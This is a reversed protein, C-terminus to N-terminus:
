PQCDRQYYYKQLTRIQHRRLERRRRRWSRIVLRHLTVYVVAFVLGFLGFAYILVAWMLAM